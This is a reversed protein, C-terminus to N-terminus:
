IRSEHRLTLIFLNEEINQTEISSNSERVFNEISAEISLSRSFRKEVSFRITNERDIQGTASGYFDRNTYLYNMRYRLNVPTGYTITLLGSFLNQDLTNQELYDQRSYTSGLAIQLDRRNYTYNLRAQENVFLDTSVATTINDSNLAAAGNDITESLELSFNNNRNMQRAFVFRKLSNKIERGDEFDINIDGVEIRYQTTISSGELLVSYRIDNFDDILADEYMLEDNSANLSLTHISNLRRALSMSVFNSQYDALTREAYFDNYRYGLTLTDLSTFQLILNPGTSLFGTNQLNNPTRVAFADITQQGYFGDFDWTVADNVLSWNSLLNANAITENDFTNDKYDLYELSLGLVFDNSSSEDVVNLEGGVRAVTDKSQNTATRSINDSYSVGAEIAYNVNAAELQNSMVLFFSPLIIYRSPFDM